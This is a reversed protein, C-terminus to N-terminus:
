KEPIQCAALFKARNFNPNSGACLEAMDYCLVVYANRTLFTKANCMFQALEVFHKKTM